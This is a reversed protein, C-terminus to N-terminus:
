INLAVPEDDVIAHILHAYIPIVQHIANCVMIM